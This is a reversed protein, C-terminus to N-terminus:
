PTALPQCSAKILRFGWPSFSLANGCLEDILLAGLINALLYTRILDDSKARINLHLLSKIPKFALEIQWRLRYLELVEAASIQNSTLDTLLYTYKAARLSRRDPKTAGNKEAKRRAKAIAQEAAARSKKVAVLRVAFRRQGHRLFVPWDGIEHSDLTELLSLTDLRGGKSTELPMTQYHIRVVVHAGASLAAAVQPPQGYGRDALLVEGPGQIHCRM